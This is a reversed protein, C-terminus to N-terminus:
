RIDRYRQVDYFCQDRGADWGARYSHDTQYLMTNKEYAFQDRAVGASWLGSSCGHEAGTQYSQQNLPLPYTNASMALRWGVDQPHLDLDVVPAVPLSTCGALLILILLKKM